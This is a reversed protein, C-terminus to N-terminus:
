GSPNPDGALLGGVALLAILVGILAATFRFMKQGRLHRAKIALFQRMMPTELASSAARSM